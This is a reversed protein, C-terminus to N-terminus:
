IDHGEENERGSLGADDELLWIWQWGAVRKVLHNYREGAPLGSVAGFERDNMKWTEPELM